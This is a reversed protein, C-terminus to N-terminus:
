RFYSFTSVIHSKILTVKGAMSLHNTKWSDLKSLIKEKIINFDRVRSGLGLPYGLYNCLSSFSRFSLTSETLARDEQSTNPSFWLSSKDGNVILGSCSTFTHLSRKVAELSKKNIKVFLLIDNAFLLHPFPINQNQIPDM